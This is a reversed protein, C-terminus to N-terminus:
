SYKAPLQSAAAKDVLWILRGQKPHIRQAPLLGPQPKGDLVHSLTAAKNEGAAMFMVLHASNLVQSTLTVRAAPRNQYRATVAATAGPLELPSGPFLSATHGDEGMGLLVLDFRPWDLSPSAFKKLTAAYDGAAQAPELEGKIRHVNKEPIGVPDLLLGRALGYSSEPDEPPVCREDGWFVEIRRWDVKDRAEAALLQFLRKPTGGGNLALLFRDQEQLSKRAQEVFLDTASHSLSELDQFIRVEPNM